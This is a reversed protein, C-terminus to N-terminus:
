SNSESSEQKGQKLKREKIAADYEDDEEKVPEIQGGLASRSLFRICICEKKIMDQFNGTYTDPDVSKSVKSKISKIRKFISELDKKMENLNSIHQKFDKSARELRSSSLSNCNSLM